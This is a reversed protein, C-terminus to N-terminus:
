REVTTRRVMGEGEGSQSAWTPKWREKGALLRKAQERLSGADPPGQRNADPMRESQEDQQM